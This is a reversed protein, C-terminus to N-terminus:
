KGNLLNELQQIRNELETQAFAKIGLDLIARAASVRATAPSDPDICISELTDTATAMVAVLRSVSRSYTQRLVADVAAMFAPEARLRSLQRPSLGSAEAAKEITSGTGVAIAALAQKHNLGEFEPDLELEGKKAM